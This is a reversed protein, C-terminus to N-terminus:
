DGAGSIPKGTDKEIHKYIFDTWSYDKNNLKKNLEDRILMCQFGLWNKGEGNMNDSWVKDRDEVSNHEVLYLDGTALLAKQMMPVKEFKARLCVLMGKWNSGNGGYTWDEKDAEGENKKALTKKKNCAQDGTASKFEDAKDWFKLAQFAAETNSFSNVVAPSCPAAIKISDTGCEWFNGCFGCHCLTDWEQEHDPLYFAGVGVGDDM